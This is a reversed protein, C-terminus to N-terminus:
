TKAIFIALPGTRKIYTRLAAYSFFYRGDPELAKIVHPFGADYLFTVGRESVSFEDLNEREFRLQALQDKLGTKEDASTEKDSELDKVIKKTEAKLKQNAMTALNALADSNFADAAKIVAGTRLSVLFHKTQTDPYAGMGSQTFTIDLLYNTNYNVKYDFDTLWGDQRYEALTSDFVNKIALTKQIRRLVSEDTLGLVIPYRVIAKRKGPAGGTEKRSRLLVVRRPQVIAHDQAAVSPSQAVIACLAMPLALVLSSLRNRNM